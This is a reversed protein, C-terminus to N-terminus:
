DSPGEQGDGSENCKIDAEAEYLLPYGAGVEDEVAGGTTMTSWTGKEVVAHPTGADRFGVDEGGGTLGLSEFAKVLHFVRDKFAAAANRDDRFSGVPATQLARSTVPM